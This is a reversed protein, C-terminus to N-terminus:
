WGSATSTPAATSRAARCASSSPRSSISVQRRLRRRDADGRRCQGFARHRFRHDQTQRRRRRAPHHQRAVPRPPHRRRRARAGSRRRRQHVAQAGRRAGLPRGDIRDALSIGDVFEMALYPPRATPDRSFSYYRVITDHHLRGLVTAEKKFLAFIAEQDALEPLIAKIAVPEGTQINHGRYVEGMGGSAIREDIEYTDNLRTGPQLAAMAFRTKGDSPM